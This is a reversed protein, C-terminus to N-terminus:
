TAQSYTIRRKRREALSETFDGLESIERKLIKGARGPVRHGAARHDDIHSLVESRRPFIPDDPSFPDDKLCCHCCVIGGNSSHYLYVDGDSFRCYAM